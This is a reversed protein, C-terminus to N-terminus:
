SASGTASARHNHYSHLKEVFQKTSTSKYELLLTLIDFHLLFNNMHNKYLTYVDLPPLTWEDKFSNLHNQYSNTNLSLM